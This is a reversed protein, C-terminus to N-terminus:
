KSCKRQRISAMVKTAAWHMATDGENDRTETGCGQNLLLSVVELHGKLCALHLPTVGAHDAAYIEVDNDLLWQM